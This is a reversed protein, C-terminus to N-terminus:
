RRDSGRKPKPAPVRRTTVETGEPLEDRFAREPDDWDEPDVEVDKMRLRVREGDPNAHRIELVVKEEPDVVLVLDAIVRAVREDRPELEVEIRAPLDAEEDAELARVARPEFSEELAELDAGICALLASAVRNEEFVFREARKERVRHVLHSRADSRIRVPRDGEVELVLTAPEARLLLAGKSVIPEDLLLSEQEQVFGARLFEMDELEEAIPALAARAAELTEDKDQPPSAQAAISALALATLM